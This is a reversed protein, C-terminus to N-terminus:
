GADASLPRPQLHAAAAAAPWARMACEIVSLLSQRDGGHQVELAIGQILCAFYSALTAIDTGAPVEGNIKAESLRSHLQEHFFSRRFAVLDRTEECAEKAGLPRQTVFCTKPDGDGAFMDVADTLLAKLGIHANSGQLHDDLTKATQTAYRDLSRLYLQEKTGFHRYLSPRAIGMALTLETISTNGFGKAAFLATAKALAEELCFTIPRGKRRTPLVENM